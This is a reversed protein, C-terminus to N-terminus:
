DEHPGGHCGRPRADALEEASVQGDGNADIRAFRLAALKVKMLEHFTAFEEASLAGSGDADAQAFAQDRAAAFEPGKGGPGAAAGLATAGVLALAALTSTHFAKM